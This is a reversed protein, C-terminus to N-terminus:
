KHVINNCNYIDSNVVNMQLETALSPTLFLIGGPLTQNHHVGQIPKLPNALAGRIPENGSRWKSSTPFSNSSEFPAIPLRCVM